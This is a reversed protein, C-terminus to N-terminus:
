ARAGGEAVALMPAAHRAFRQAAAEVVPELRTLYLTTSAVSAHGMAASLIPLRAQPDAGSRYWKLLVHVAYTHRLDHMRPPQGAATRVGAAQFLSRMGQSLGGECYSQSGGHGNALLPADPTCSLRSRQALYREVEAAAGDSLAVLRSKRFKSVRVLLTRETADYDGVTLRALEGCRLGAADLLTVALRYVAPRLPSVPAAALLDAQRLLDLIQHERFIFPRRPASRAPFGGLDPVFCRPDTRRHYLCLKRVVLMRGRRVTGDLHALTLAWADFDSAALATARREVLFRELGALIAGENEFKRGLSRHLGLYADIVGRLVTPESATATM